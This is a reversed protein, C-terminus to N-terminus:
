ANKLVGIQGAANSGSCKYDCNLAQSCRKNGCESCGIMYTPLAGAKVRCKECCYKDFNKPDEFINLM